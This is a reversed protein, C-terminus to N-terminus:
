WVLWINIMYFKVIFLRNYGKTNRKSNEENNDNNNNINESHIIYKPSCM